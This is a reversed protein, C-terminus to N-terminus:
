DQITHMMHKVFRYEEIWAEKPLMEKLLFWASMALLGIISALISFQMGVGLRRLKLTQLANIIGCLGEAAVAVMAISIFTTDLPMIYCQYFLFYTLVAMMTSNLVLFLCLDLPHGKECGWYGFFFRFHQMLPITMILVIEIKHRFPPYQLAYGKYFAFVFMYFVYVYAFYSHLFFMSKVYPTLNFYSTQHKSNGAQECLTYLITLSDEEAAVSQSLPQKPDEPDNKSVM